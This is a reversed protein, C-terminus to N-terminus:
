GRRSENENRVAIPQLRFPSAVATSGGLRAFWPERRDPSELAGASLWFCLWFCPSAVIITQRVRRETTRTTPMNVQRAATAWCDAVVASGDPATGGSTFKALVSLSM